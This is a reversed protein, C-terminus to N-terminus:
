RKSRLERLLSRIDKYIVAGVAIGILVGLGWGALVDSVFHIGTAIRLLGIALAILGLSLWPRYMLGAVTTVAAFFTAHGSPFSDLGGYELLPKFNELAQYPRPWMLQMKIATAIVWAILGTAGIAAVKGLWVRWTFSHRHHPWWVTIVVLGLVLVIVDVRGLGSVVPQVLWELVSQLSPHAEWMTQWWYAVNADINMVSM